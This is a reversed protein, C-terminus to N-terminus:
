WEKARRPPAVPPKRPPVGVKRPQESSNSLEPTPNVLARMSRVRNSGLTPCDGTRTVDAPNVRGPPLSFRPSGVNPNQPRQPKSPIFIVPITQPINGSEIDEITFGVGVSLKEEPKKLLLSLIDQAGNKLALEVATKNQDDKCELQRAGSFGHKYLIVACATQKNLVAYHMPSSKKFDGAFVSCGHQIMLELYTLRNHFVANHICTMGSNKHNQWDFNAGQAIVQLVKPTQNPEESIIRFLEEALQDPSFHTPALYTKSSYKARIFQERISREADPSPKPNDGLQHEFISNVRANGLETMCLVLEPEWAKTDLITSRVKSIHTGLNRHVGSCELCVLIGLNISAWDPNSAGCDACFQNGETSQLIKSVLTENDTTTVASENQNLQEEIAAQIALIWDEREKESDAQLQIPKKKEPSMIEFILGKTQGPPIRTTCLMVNLSLTTDKKSNYFSLQGNNVQVWYKEWNQKMPNSKFMLHGAKGKENGQSGQQLIIRVEKMKSELNTFLRVAKQHYENQSGIFDHLSQLIKVSKKSHVQELIHSFSERCEIKEKELRELDRESQAIKSQDSKKSNRLVEIKSKQSDCEIVNSSVKKKAEAMELFDYNVFNELVEVVSKQMADLMLKQISTVAAFTTGFYRVFRSVDLTNDNEKLWSSTSIETLSKALADADTCCSRLSDCYKSVGKTLLEVGKKALQAKFFADDLASDEM